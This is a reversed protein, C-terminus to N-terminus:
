QKFEELERMQEETLVKMIEELSATRILVPDRIFDGLTQSSFIRSNPLLDRGLEYITRIRQYIDRLEVRKNLYERLNQRAIEIAIESLNAGKNILQDIYDPTDQYVGIKQKILKLDQVAISLRQALEQEDIGETPYEAM